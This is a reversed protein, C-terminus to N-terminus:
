PQWHIGEKVVRAPNGVAVAHPPISRTVVSGIGVVSGTGITVGKLITVSDGVWVREGLTISRAPNIRQQDRFIPHGDSTMIKVQRSLGSEAGIVIQTQEKASLYCHHGVMVGAGIAISCGDGIIELTVSRLKAGAGIEIRNGEGRVTIRCGSMKVGAGIVVTTSRSIRIRNRLYHIWNFRTSM